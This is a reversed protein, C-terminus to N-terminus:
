ESFNFTNNVACVNCTHLVDFCVIRATLQFLLVKVKNTNIRVRKESPQALRSYRRGLTKARGRLRFELNHRLSGSYLLPYREGGM